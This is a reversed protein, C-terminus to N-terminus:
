SYLLQSLDPTNRLVSKAKRLINSVEAISMGESEAIESLTQEDIISKMVIRRGLDSLRKSLFVELKDIYEEELVLQDVKETHVDEIGDLDIEEYLEYSDSESEDSYEFSQEQLAVELSQERTTYQRLRDRIINTAISRVFDHNPESFQEIKGKSFLFLLVESAIDEEDFDGTISLWRCTAKVIRKITLLGEIEGIDSKYSARDVGILKDVIEIFYGEAMLTEDVNIVTNKYLIHDLVVSKCEFKPAIVNNFDSNSFVVDIAIANQLNAGTFNVREMNSSNITTNSLNSKSLHASSFISEHINAYSIISETCIANGFNCFRLQAGELNIQELHAGNLKMNEPLPICASKVEQASKLQARRYSYLITLANESVRPVYESVLVSELLQVEGEKLMDVLFMSTEPSIRITDLVSVIKNKIGKSMHNALFYERYSKHAFGYNGEDDRILFSATRIESDLEVLLRADGLKGVWEKHLYEALRTYHISVSEEESISLALAELFDLKEEKSFINERWSDRQVWASTFVKYLQSPSIMKADIKDIARVIMDLLLPRQCLEILNYIRKIKGIAKEAELPKTKEVYKEIQGITFPRLYVIQFGKRLILDWYLEKASDSSYDDSSGFVVEEEESRSRFYHTRCTLIVKASGQVSRALENFNRLTIRPTVKSAMEDFGDLILVIRGKSLSHQFLEFSVNSLGAKSLHSLVLGELTFQRDANRLDIRVPLPNDAPSQMYKEALRYALAKTLFTKGTGADGLLTLQSWDPDHLWKDLVSFASQGIGKLEEGVLPEIYNNLRYQQNNRTEFFIGNAYRNGDFLQSELENLSTCVIGERSSFELLHTQVSLSSVIGAQIAPTHKKISRITTAFEGILEYSLQETSCLIVRQITYDGLRREIYLDVIFGHLNKNFDVSYHLLHYLEAVRGVFSHPQLKEQRLISLQKSNLISLWSRNSQHTIVQQDEITTFESLITSIPIARGGLDSFRDRTKAIIGCIAGTELNLLPAGSFGPPIQANKLKLVHPSKSSGEYVPTIPEGNDYTETYGYSYLQDGLDIAAYLFACVHFPPRENETLTLLAVDIDSSKRVIAGSWKQNHWHITIPTSSDEETGLTHACTLLSTETIWFGTGIRGMSEVKVTCERLTDLLKENNTNSELMTPKRLQNGM